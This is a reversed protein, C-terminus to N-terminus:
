PRGGFRSLFAALDADDIRNSNGVLDGEPPYSLSANGTGLAGVLDLLDFGDLKQDFDLDGKGRAGAPVGGAGRNLQWIGRGYTAVEISSGDDSVCIDTVKVFPLGFDRTFTAGHDTSKYLGIFTGVYLVNPDNPDGKVSEIPVNPLTGAGTVSQWTRGGDSTFFLHGYEDPVPETPPNAALSPTADFLTTNNSAVWFRSANPDTPDFAVGTAGKIGLLRRQPNTGLV